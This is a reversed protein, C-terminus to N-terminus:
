LSKKRELMKVIDNITSFNAFDLEDDLSISFTDELFVLLKVISLSDMLNGNMLETDDQLDVDKGEFIDKKLYDIIIDKYAM